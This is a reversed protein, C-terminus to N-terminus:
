PKIIKALANQYANSAIKESEFSGLRVIKGDILISAKWRTLSKRKELCVGIYKSTKKVSRNYANQRNTVQRLNILRNDKKNRNIHDCQLGNDYEMFSMIVLRHVTLTRRKFDRHLSVHPYGDANLSQQMIRNIGKKLSKVRGLSSVEYHGEYGPIAKWIEETDQM